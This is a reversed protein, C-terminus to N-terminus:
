YKFGISIGIGRSDINIVEESNAGHKPFSVFDLLDISNRYFYEAGISIIRNKDRPVDFHFGVAGTYSFNDLFFSGIRFTTNFGLYKGFPYVIIGSAYNWEIFFQTLGWILHGGYKFQVVDTGLPIRAEILPIDAMLINGVDLQRITTGLMYGDFHYGDFYYVSSDSQVISNPITLRSSNLSPDYFSVKDNQYLNQAILPISVFTLLLVFLFSITFLINDKSKKLINMIFMCLEGLLLTIFIDFLM